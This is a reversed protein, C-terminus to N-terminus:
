TTPVKASFQSEGILQAYIVGRPSTYFGMMGRLTLRFDEAASGTDPM